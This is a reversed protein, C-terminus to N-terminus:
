RGCKRIKADAVPHGEQAIYHVFEHRFTRMMSGPTRRTTRVYVRDEGGGKNAHLWLGNAPEWRQGDKFMIGSVAYIREPFPRSEGLCRQVAAYEARLAMLAEPNDIQEADFVRWLPGGITYPDPPRNMSCSAFVVMTFAFTGFVALLWDRLNPVNM